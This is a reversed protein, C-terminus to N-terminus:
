LRVLGQGLVGVLLRVRGRRGCGRCSRRLARRLVPMGHAAAAGWGRIGGGCRRRRCCVMVVVLKRRLHRCRRNRVQLVLLRASPSRVALTGSCVLLVLVLVLVLVLLDAPLLQWMGARVVRVVRLVRLVRVMLVVQLLVLLLVLLLLQLLPLGRRRGLLLVLVLLLLLLLLLLLM